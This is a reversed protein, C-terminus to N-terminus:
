PPVVRCADHDETNVVIEREGDATVPISTAGPTVPHPGMVDVSWAGDGPACFEPGRAGAAAVAIYSSKRNSCRAARVATTFLPRM